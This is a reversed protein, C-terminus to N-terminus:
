LNELPIKKWGDKSKVYLFNDDWALSGGPADDFEGPKPTFPSKLSLQSHPKGGVTLTSKLNHFARLGVAGDGKVVMHINEDSFQHAKVSGQPQIVLSQYSATDKGPVLRVKTRKYPGVRFEEHTGITVAQHELNYNFDGLNIGDNSLTFKEGKLDKTEISECALTKTQVSSAKLAEIEIRSNLQVKHINSIGKPPQIRLNDDGAELKPHSEKVEGAILEIADKALEFNHDINAKLEAPPQRWDIKKFKLEM